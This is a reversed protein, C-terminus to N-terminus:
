RGAEILSGNLAALSVDARMVDALASVLREEAALASRRTLLVVGLDSTGAAYATTATVVAARLPTVVGSVLQDRVERTHEREHHALKIERELEGQIRVARGAAAAAVTEQRGVDYRAPDFFPLPITVLAAAAHDGSGERWAVGGVTFTPGMVAHAVRAEATALAARQEAARVAPHRSADAIASVTIAQDLSGDAVLAPGRDFSAGIAHALAIRAATARGEGDLIALRASGVEANALSREVATAAGSTVRVEAIRALRTADTVAAERLSILGQAELLDIWALAATAAAELRSREVDSTAARAAWSAADRRAAGLSRTTIEQQVTLSVEPGLPLSRPERAGAMITAQPVSPLSAGPTASHAHAARQTRTAEVVPPGHKVSEDIARRLSWTEVGKPVASSENSVPAANLKTTLLFAAAGLTRILRRCTRVRDNYVLRQRTGM